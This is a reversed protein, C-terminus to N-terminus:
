RQLNIQILSPSPHSCLDKLFCVSGGGGGGGRDYVSMRVFNLVTCVQQPVFLFPKSGLTSTSTLITERSPAHFLASMGVDSDLSVGPVVFVHLSSTSCIFVSM